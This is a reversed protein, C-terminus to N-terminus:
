KERYEPLHRDAATRLIERLEDPLPAYPARLKRTAGPVGGLESLAKDVVYGARRVPQVGEDYFRNVRRQIAFAEEWEGREIMGHWKMVLAPCLGVLASFCGSAGMAVLGCLVQEHVFHALDPHHILLGNAVVPDFGASKIGAIAPCWERLRKVLAADLPFQGQSGAYVFIPLDGAVGA